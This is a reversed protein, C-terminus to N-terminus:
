VVFMRRLTEYYAAGVACDGHGAGAVLLLEADDRAAAIREAMRVPVLRDHTGHVVLVRAGTRAINARTDLAATKRGLIDLWALPYFVVSRKLLLNLMEGPSTVGSEVVLGRPTEEGACEAAAAAAFLSGQSRGLLVVDAPAIGEATRLHALAARVDGSATSLTLEGGSEGYGRLFLACVNVGLRDHLERFYAGFHGPNRMNGHVFLLTATTEVPAPIWWARLTVDGAVPIRLDDFALGHAAPTEPVRRCARARVLHEFRLHIFAPILVLYVIVVILLTYLGM